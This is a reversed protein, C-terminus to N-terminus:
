SKREGDCEKPLESSGGIAADHRRRLPLLPTLTFDRTLLSLLLAYIVAFIDADAVHLCIYHRLLLM